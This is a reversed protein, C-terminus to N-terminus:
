CRSYEVDLDLETEKLLLDVAEEAVAKFDWNSETIFRNLSSQDKTDIFLENISKADYEKKGATILGLEIRCFNQFQPKTFHKKFKLLINRIRRPVGAIFGFM